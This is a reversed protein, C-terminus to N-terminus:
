KRNCISLDDETEAVALRAKSVKEEGEQISKDVGGKGRNAGFLGQGTGSGDFYRLVGCRYCNYRTSWCDTKGCKSCSAM